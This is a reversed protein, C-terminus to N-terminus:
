SAKFAFEAALESIGLGNMKQVKIQTDIREKLTDVHSIVGIMKGSANLSDLANLAIELTDNDLTGFGEDLFLSDISTKASVLDSLALALALSVLFSEGGSLTKTDRIADAQWTDIVELALNDDRHAQLQYRGDLRTLQNNALYVLHGLTLGQAFRTFKAGDASGILGNLYALDETDRSQQAIKEILTSQQLKVDSDQQVKESLQGQKIQLAKVEATLRECEGLITGKDICQSAEAPEPDHLWQYASTMMVNVDRNIPDADSVRQAFGDYTSLLQEKVHSLQSQKIEITQSALQLEDALALTENYVDIPMLADLYAKEATAIKTQQDPETDEGTIRELTELMFLSDNLYQQWLALAQSYQETLAQLQTLTANLEGLCRQQDTHATNMKAQAKVTLEQWHKRGQEIDALGEKISQEGFLALRESKKIALSEQIAKNKDTLAQIQAELQLAKTKESALQPEILTLAEQSHRQQELSTRYKAIVKEQESFWDDFSKDQPLVLNFTALEQTLANMLQESDQQNQTQQAVLREQLETLQKLESELLQQQNQDVLILNDQASLAEQYHRQTDDLKVLQETLQQWHKIMQQIHEAVAQVGLSNDIQLYALAADMHAVYGLAHAQQVWLSEKQWWLTLASQDAICKQLQEDTNQLQTVKAVKQEKLRKGQSEIEAFQAKLSALRSEHSSVEVQQYAEIAPHQQSGCLPCSQEPQLQARHEALDMIAKHQQVILEVDNIEKKLGIYSTRVPVLQGELESLAHTLETHVQQQQFISATVEAYSQCRALAESQPVALQQLQLLAQQFDERAVFNNESLLKGQAQSAASLLQALETKKMTLRQLSDVLGQQATSKELRKEDLVASEKKFGQLTLEYEKNRVHKSQWLPLKEALQGRQPDESLYQQAVSIKYRHLDAEKQISALQSKLAASEDNIAVIQKENDLSDVKLRSIEQALPQITEHILRETAKFSAEQTSHETQLQELENRSKDLVQQASAQGQTLSQKQQEATKIGQLLSEQAQYHPQIAFAPKAKELKSLDAQHSQLKAQNQEFHNKNNHWQSQYDQYKEVWTLSKQTQELAALMSKEDLSVQTLQETIENLQVDSLTNVSDVRAQLIKLDNQAQKHKEFTHQSIQGYIETGTLEELLEAREKTPANLFAAFQGQSLMMSKTFRSFDLGTIREIEKDVAKIKDALIEGTALALEVKQNQLKGDIQNKARRQSWFARYAVGKVEFTVEALCASTHRTMVQNQSESIKLRPTEHYLALCIADLITTKGAGTPGTIAFLGHSNFPPQTFDIFWAGKLANINEFRLSLIRM